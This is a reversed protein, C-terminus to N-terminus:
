EQTPVGDIPEDHQSLFIDRYSTYMSTFVLPIVILLGLLLPIAGLIYFILMVVGYILFPLVNKFCGYFSEKMALHFPMNQLVILAPAFWVAMFLPLLLAMGILVSLLLEISDEPAVAVDSGSLMDFYASGVVAVMVLMSTITTVVSLLILQLVNHSFGAFLYRVEFGRKEYIAHCGLMLGGAWVFNILSSVITGVVPIFNIAIAIFLGVFMTIVWNGADQKFMDFGSSIWEMGAGTPRNQPGIYQAGDTSPSQEALESEPAQYPSNQNEM